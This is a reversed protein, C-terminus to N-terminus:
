SDNWSTSLCARWGSLGGCKISTSPNQGRCANVAATMATSAATLARPVFSPAPSWTTMVVTFTPDSSNMMASGNATSAATDSGVYGGRTSCMDGAHGDAQPATFHPANPAAITPTMQAYWPHIFMPMIAPSTFSGCRFMGSESTTPM